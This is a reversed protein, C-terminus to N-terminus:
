LDFELCTFLGAQGGTCEIRDIFDRLPILVKNIKKKKLISSFWHTVDVGVLTSQKVLSKNKLTNRIQLM